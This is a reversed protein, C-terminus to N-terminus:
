FCCAMCALDYRSEDSRSIEQQVAIRMIEPDAIELKRM